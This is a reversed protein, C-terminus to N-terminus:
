GETELLRPPDSGSPGAADWVGEGNRSASYRVCPLRIWINEIISLETQRRRRFTAM